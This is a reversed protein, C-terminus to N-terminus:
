WNIKEQQWKELYDNARSFPRSGFFGNYASLPSPHAAEIILHKSADILSKKSRAYNGWLIFVLHERKDSLTQIVTDTFKEWGRDRHSTPTNAVVTLIANLLFVGEEAWAELNGGSVSTPQGLDSAIEKFINKLSPPEPIGKPVSFCLGHAQGPGHYPDQGLIVVKVQSFPTLWFAKFINEPRPYITKNLYEQRVFDALNTFDPSALYPALVKKWEPEINVEKAM